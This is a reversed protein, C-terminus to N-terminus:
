NDNLHLTLLHVDTCASSGTWAAKDTQLTHIPRVKGDM